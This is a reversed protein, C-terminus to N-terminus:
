NIASVRTKVLTSLMTACAEILGRDISRPFTTRDEREVQEINQKLSAAILQDRFRFSTQSNSTNWSLKLSAAILQDRFRASM